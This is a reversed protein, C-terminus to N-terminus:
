HAAIVSSRAIKRRGELKRTVARGCYKEGMKDV